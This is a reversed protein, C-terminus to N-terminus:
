KFIIEYEIINKNIVSNIDIVSILYLEKISYFKNM